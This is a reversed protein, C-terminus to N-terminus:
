VEVWRMKKVKNPLFLVVVILTAEGKEEERWNDLIGLCGENNERGTLGFAPIETEVGGGEKKEKVKLDSWVIAVGDFM